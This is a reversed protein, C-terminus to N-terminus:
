MNQVFQDVSPVDEFYRLTANSNPLLTKDRGYKAYLDAMENYKHGAHGKVWRIEACPHEDFAKFLRLILERNKTPYGNREWKRRWEYLAKKAFDCDAYIITHMGKKASVELALVVALTESVINTSPPALHGYMIFPKEFPFVVSWGAAKGKHPNSSGDTYIKLPKQLKM